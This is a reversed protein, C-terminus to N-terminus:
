LVAKDSWPRHRRADLYWSVRSLGAAACESALAFPHSEEKGRCVVTLQGSAMAGSESVVIENVEVTAQSLTQFALCHATEIEVLGVLRNPKMMPLELVAGGIFCGAVRRADRAAFAQLYDGLAQRPDRRQASKENM